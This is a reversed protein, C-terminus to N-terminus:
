HSCLSLCIRVVDTAMDLVLPLIELTATDPDMETAMMACAQLATLRRLYSEQKRIELISPVLFDTAWETGFVATLEQLYLCTTLIVIAEALTCVCRLWVFLRM